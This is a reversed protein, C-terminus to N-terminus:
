NNTDYPEKGYLLNVLYDYSEKPIRYVKEMTTVMYLTEEYELVKDISIIYNTNIYIPVISSPVYYNYASIKVFNHM